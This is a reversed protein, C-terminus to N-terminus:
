NSDVSLSHKLHVHTKPTRKKGTIDKECLFLYQGACQAKRWRGQTGLTMQTCVGQSESGGTWWAPSVQDVVGVQDSGEGGSGKLWVWM